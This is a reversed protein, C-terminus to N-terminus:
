CSKVYDSAWSRHDDVQLTQMPGFVRVWAREVALIFEEPSEKWIVRGALFRTATDSIMLIPLAKKMNPIKIWLTDAQVRANFEQVSPVSSVPVQPRHQHQRCVDCDHEKACEILVSSAGKMELLRKLEANTPHGLNRHLRSVTRKALQRDQRQLRQLVGTAKYSQM